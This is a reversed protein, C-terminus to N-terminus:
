FSNPSGKKFRGPLHTQRPGRKQLPFSSFFVQADQELLLILKKRVVALAVVNKKNQSRKFNLRAVMEGLAAAQAVTLAAAAGGGPAPDSSGLRELFKDLSLASLKPLEKLRGRM